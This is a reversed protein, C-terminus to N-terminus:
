LWPCEDIASVKYRWRAELIEYTTGNKGVIPTRQMQMIRSVYLVRKSNTDAFVESTDYLLPEVSEVKLKDNENCCILQYMKKYGDDNREDPNIAPLRFKYEIFSDPRIYDEMCKDNPCIPHIVFMTGNFWVCMSEKENVDNM